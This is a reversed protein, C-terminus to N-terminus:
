NGIIENITLWRQVKTSPIYVPVLRYQFMESNNRDVWYNSKRIEDIAQNGITENVYIKRNTQQHWNDDRCCYEIIWGRLILDDRELDM